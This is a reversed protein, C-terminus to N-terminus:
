SSNLFNLFVGSFYKNAVTNFTPLYCDCLHNFHAKFFGFCFMVDLWTRFCFLQFSIFKWFINYCYCNMMIKSKLKRINEKLSLIGNFSIANTNYDFNQFRMAEIDCQIQFFNVHKLIFTDYSFSICCVRQQTNTM